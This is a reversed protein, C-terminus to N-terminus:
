NDDTKDKVQGNHSWVAYLTMDKEPKFDSTIVKGNKTESWGEFTYVGYSFGNTPLSSYQLFDGKKIMIESPTTGSGGNLDFTIHFINKEWIAYVTVNSTVTYEGLMSSGNNDLSWGLFLYPPIDSDNWTLEHKDFHLLTGDEYNRTTYSYRGDEFLYIYYTVTYIKAWVAYYTKDSDMYVQLLTTKPNGGKTESWGKFVYGDRKPEGIAIVSGEDLIKTEVDNDSVLTLKYQKPDPKCGSMVAFLFLLAILKIKVKM